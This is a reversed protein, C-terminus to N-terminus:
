WQEIKTKREYPDLNNIKLDKYESDGVIYKTSIEEFICGIESYFSHWTGKNIHIVDGKKLIYKIDNLFLTIEGSM